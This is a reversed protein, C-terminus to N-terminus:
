VNKDVFDFYKESNARFAIIPSNEDEQAHELASSAELLMREGSVLRITRSTLGIYCKGDVSSIIKSIENHLKDAIPIADDISSNTKIAAFSDEKYEFILDKFQFNNILIESVEKMLDSKRSVNTVKILFLNLDFELSTARVLENDLRTMLYSEWGFGTDPSFLGKPNSSDSEQATVEAPKEDEVPLVTKEVEENESNNDDPVSFDGEIVPIDYTEFEGDTESKIDAASVTQSDETTSVNSDEPEEETKETTEIEQPIDYETDDETDDETNTEPEKDLVENVFDTEEIQNKYTISMYFIILITLVTFVFIVLFSIKAYYAISSPRLTYMAANVYVFDDGAKSSDFYLKIMDTNETPVTGKPSYIFITKANQRVELFIYDDLSGVAEPLKTQLHSANNGANQITAKVSSNMADFTKKTRVYGESYEKYINYGFFAIAIVFIISVFISYITLIKNKRM